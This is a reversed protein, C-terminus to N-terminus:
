KMNQNLKGCDPQLKEMKGMGDTYMMQSKRTMLVIGRMRMGKREGKVNWM